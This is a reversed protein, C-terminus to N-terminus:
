ATESRPQIESIDRPGVPLSIVFRAGADEPFEAYITGGHEEIIQRSIYLGLGMGSRDAHAQYFREFLRARHEPAVGLGRDRVTVVVHTSVPRRLEIEIKGGEPSFKIANSLLNILVQEIRLPDVWAFLHEPGSVVVQHSTTTVEISVVVSRILAAVDTRRRQLTLHGEQVRVTELLQVVLKGLRDIQREITELARTQGADLTTTSRFTRQLYQAAAKASTMPTKLEHAAVSLFDDRARVMAAAVDAEARAATAAEYARAHDIALAVRDAVIQLFEVDATTFRRPHLTGVHLVGIVTGQVVLPVGLISRVGKERLIPNVVDGQDLDDIVIPHREEAIRGAFGKGLPIRVGREVEEELGKAARPILAKGDAAILLVAVTDASLVAAIRDLLSALLEDLSLHALAADTVSGIARLRQLSEEAEARSRRELDLLANREQDRGRSESLDRTLKAFGVLEGDASRVATLVVSAWYAAGDKRVRWGEEEYHGEDTAVRLAYAPKGRRAEAAPYFISFHKGVIEHQEYGTIRRAGENWSRVYGAADVMCIALDKVSEVLMRFSDAQPVGIFAQKDNM